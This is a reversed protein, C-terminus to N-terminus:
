TLTSKNMNQQGNETMVRYNFPKYTVFILFFVLCLFEGIKAISASLIWVGIIFPIEVRSFDMHFVEFGHSSGEKHDGEEGKGPETKLSEDEIGASPRFLNQTISNHRHDFFNFFSITTITKGSKATVIFNKDVLTNPASPPIINSDIAQFFLVNHTNVLRLCSRLNFM